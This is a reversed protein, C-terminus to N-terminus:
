ANKAIAYKFNEQIETMYTGMVIILNPNDRSFLDHLAHFGGGYTKDLKKNRVFFDNKTVRVSIAVNFEHSKPLYSLYLKADDNDVYQNVKPMKSDPNFVKFVYASAAHNGGSFVNDPYKDIPTIKPHDDIVIFDNTIRKLYDQSYANMALDVVAVNKGRIEEEFNELKSSDQVNSSQIGRFTIDLNQVSGGKTLYNWIVYAAVYGDTNNGHYFVYNIAKKREDSIRKAFEIVDEFSAQYEKETKYRSFAKEETKIEIKEVLPALYDDMEFHKRFLVKKNNLEKNTLVQINKNNTKANERQSKM